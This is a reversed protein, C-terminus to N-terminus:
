AAKKLQQEKALLWVRGRGDTHYRTMTRVEFKTEKGKNQLWKLLANRVPQTEGPECKVCQGAKLRSFLEDYKGEPSARVGTYEDNGIALLSPDLQKMPRHKKRALQAFPNTQTTM